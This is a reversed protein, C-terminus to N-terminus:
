VSRLLLDNLFSDFTTCVFFCSQYKSLQGKTQMLKSKEQNFLPADPYGNYISKWNGWGKLSTYQMHICPLWIRRGTDHKHCWFYAELPLKFFIWNGKKVYFIRNQCQVLSGQRYLFSGEAAPLVGASIRITFCGSWPLPMWIKWGQSISEVASSIGACPSRRIRTGPHCCAMTAYGSLVSQRSMCWLIQPYVGWRFGYDGGM